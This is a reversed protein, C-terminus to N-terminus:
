EVIVRQVAQEGENTRISLLYMGSQINELKLSEKWDGKNRSENKWFEKIIRGSLDHLAVSVSRNDLLTYNFNINDKAPNPYVSLNEVAGSCSRWVDFYPEKGAESSSECINDVTKLATLEPEIKDRVQQPLKSLFEPTPDFWMYYAYPEGSKTKKCNWDKSRIIIPVLENIRIYNDVNTNINDFIKNLADLKNEFNSTNIVKVFFANTDKDIEENVRVLKKFEGVNKDFDDIKLNFKKINKDIGNMREDFDLNIITDIEIDPLNKLLSDFNIEPIAKVISDINIKPQHRMLSDFNIKPIKGMLSDVENRNETMISDINVRNAILISDLKNPYFKIYISDCLFKMSFWRGIKGSTTDNQHAKFRTKFSIAKKNYKKFSKNLAKNLSDNSTFRMKKIVVKRLNSDKINELIELRSLSDIKILPRDHRSDYTISYRKFKINNISDNNSSQSDENDKEKINTVNIEKQIRVQPNDKSDQSQLDISNENDENESGFIKAENDKDDFMFIRKNGSNDTILRPSITQVVQNTNSNEEIKVSVGGNNLIRVQEPKGESNDWYQLECDPLLKIGFNQLEEDSLEIPHIGKINLNDTNNQEKVQTIVNNNEKEENTNEVKAIVEANNNNEPPVSEEKLDTNTKTTIDKSISSSYIQNNGIDNKGLNYFTLIGLTAAFAAAAGIKYMFPVGKIQSLINGWFPKNHREAESLLQRVEEHSIIPEENRAKNFYDDLNPNNKM